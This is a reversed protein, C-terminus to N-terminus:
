EPEKAKTPPTKDEPPKYAELRRASLYLRVRGGGRVRKWLLAGLLGGVALAIGLALLVLEAAGGHM